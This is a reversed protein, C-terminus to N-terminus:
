QREERVIKKVAAKIHGATDGALMTVASEEEQALEGAVGAIFAAAATALTVDEARSVMAVVVGSLVDGSGATAMGPCGRDSLYVEEGDSVVTTNGKLLVTVGKDRAFEKAYRCPDSLITDTDIGTLRSFEKPHPTLIIDSCVKRELLHMNEALANLGDADILLRGKFHTLMYELVKVTEDSKGIGMGVAAASVGSLLEFLEQEKYVIEDGNDSLPFLTSELIYPLIADCICRPAALRVVGAGCRMASQAMNALRIAGSYKLSGGILAVYGYTGKHSNNKRGAFFGAVDKRELLYYPKELPEIGIDCNIRKGIVDAGDALFHGPKYDGISVTVDSKVCVSEEDIRGSNGNLGSNIDASLVFAKSRNIQEIVSLFPEGVTGHFGTGFICDVIVSFSEINECKKRVNIGLEICKDYYYKGDESFTETLLLIECAYGRNVLLQAVAFGDGANNGSGCVILCASSKDPMLKRYSSELEELIGEAARKMLERGPTGNEITRKDSLRMNEVSLVRIM